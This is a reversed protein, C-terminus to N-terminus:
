FKGYLISKYVILVESLKFEVKFEFEIVIKWMEIGVWFLVIIKLIFM